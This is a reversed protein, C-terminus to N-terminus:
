IIQEAESQGVVWKPRLAARVSHAIIALLGWLPFFGIVFGILVQAVVTWYASWEM